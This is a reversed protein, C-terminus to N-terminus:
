LGLIIAKKIGGSVYKCPLCLFLNHFVKQFVMFFFKPFHLIIELLINYRMFDLFGKMGIQRNSELNVGMDSLFEAKFKPM